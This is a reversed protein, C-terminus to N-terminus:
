AREAPAGAAEDACGGREIQVTTHDMGFREALFGKIARLVEGPHADDEIEAHMTLLPRRPTLSWVHVHHVDTVGPVAGTLAARIDAVDLGVPTGEMLIHGSERVLRWASRLILAAVLLSLVPDIPMWGTGLIVVAAAIVAVSGLLDGVVHLTAGRINLNARDGGHLILFAAVNVLLGLVAVALMMGGLVPTPAMLRHVAEFAIWAVIAVLAAGNVFAAMVQFRHYGYSRLPDAPKRAARFAAWALALAATDTLMHGADALLALSGSLVGGVVEAVMFTGTLVM